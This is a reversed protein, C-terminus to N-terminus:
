NEVISRSLRETLISLDSWILAITISFIMTMGNGVWAGYIIERKLPTKHPWYRCAPWKVGWWSSTQAEQREAMENKTTEDRMGRKQWRKSRFIRRCWEDVRREYWSQVLPRIALVDDVMERNLCILLRPRSFKGSVMAPTMSSEMWLCSCNLSERCDGTSSGILDIPEKLLRNPRDCASTSTTRCDYWKSGPAVINWM